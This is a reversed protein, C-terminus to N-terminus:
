RRYKNGGWGDLKDLEEAGGGRIRPVIVLLLPEGCTLGGGGGCTCVTCNCPLKVCDRTIIKGPWIKVPRVEPAMIGGGNTLPPCCPDDLCPEWTM